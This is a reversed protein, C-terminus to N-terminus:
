PRPQEEGSQQRELDARVRNLEELLAAKEEDAGRAISTALERWQMEDASPAAAPAGEEKPPLSELASEADYLAMRLRENEQMTIDYESKWGEAQKKSLEKEIDEESMGDARMKEIMQDIQDAGLAEEQTAKKM